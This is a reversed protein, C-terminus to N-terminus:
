DVAGYALLTRRIQGPPCRSVISRAGDVPRSDLWALWHSPLGTHGMILEDAVVALFCEQLSQGDCLM